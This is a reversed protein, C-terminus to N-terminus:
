LVTTHEGITRQGNHHCSHDLHIITLRLSDVVNGLSSAAGLAALDHLLHAAISMSILIAFLCVFRVYKM